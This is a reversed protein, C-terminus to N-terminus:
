VALDDMSFLLGLFNDEKRSMMSETGLGLLPIPMGVQSYRGLGM